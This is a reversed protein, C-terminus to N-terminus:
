CTHARCAKEKAESVAEPVGEREYGYGQGDTAVLFGLYLRLQRDLGEDREVERWRGECFILWADRGYRGVGHLEDPSEWPLSLYESSM